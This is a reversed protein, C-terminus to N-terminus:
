VGGARRLLQGPAHTGEVRPRPCEQGPLRPRELNVAGMCLNSVSRWAAPGCVEAPRGNSRAAAQQHEVLDLWLALFGHRAAGEQSAGAVPFGLCAGPSRWFLVM